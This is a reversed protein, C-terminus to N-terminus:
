KRLKRRGGLMRMRGRAASPMRKAAADMSRLGARNRSARQEYDYSAKKRGKKESSSSSARQRTLAAPRPPPDENSVVRIVPLAGSVQYGGSSFSKSAPPADYNRPRSNSTKSFVFSFLMIELWSLNTIKKHVTNRRAGGGLKKDATYKARNKNPLDIASESKRGSAKPYSDRYIKNDFHTNLNHGPGEFDEDDVWSASKRYCVFIM